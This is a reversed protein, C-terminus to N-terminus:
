VLCAKLGINLGFYLELMDLQSTIQSFGDCPVFNINQTIPIMHFKSNNDDKVQINM